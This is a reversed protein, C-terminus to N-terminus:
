TESLVSTRKLEPAPEDHVLSFGHTQKAPHPSVTTHGAPDYRLPVDHSLHGAPVIETDRPCVLQVGHEMPFYVEAAPLDLQSTHVVGPMCCGVPSPLVQATAHGFPVNAVNTSVTLEFVQSTEPKPDRLDTASHMAPDVDSDSPLTVTRLVADPTALPHM